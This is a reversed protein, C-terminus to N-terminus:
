RTRVIEYLLLTLGVGVIAALGVPSEMFILQFMEIM